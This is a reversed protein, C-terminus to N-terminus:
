SKEQPFLTEYKYITVCCAAASVCLIAGDRNRQTENQSTLLQTLTTASKPLHTNCEDLVSNINKLHVKISVIPLQFKM